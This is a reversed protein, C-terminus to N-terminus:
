RGRSRTAIRDATACRWRSPGRDDRRDDGITRGAGRVGGGAAAGALGAAGDARRAHSSPATADVCWRGSITIAWWWRRARRALGARSATAASSSSRAAPFISARGACGSVKGSWCARRNCYRTRCVLRISQDHRMCARIFDADAVFLPDASAVRNFVVHLVAFKGAEPEAGAEGFVVRALALEDATTLDPTVRWARALRPAALLPVAAILTRRQMM